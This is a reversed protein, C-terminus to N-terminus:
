HNIRAGQSFIYTKCFFFYFCKALLILHINILDFVPIITIRKFFYFRYVARLRNHTAHAKSFQSIIPILCLSKLCQLNINIHIKFSEPIINQSHNCSFCYWYICSNKGVIHYSESNFIIHQCQQNMQPIQPIM